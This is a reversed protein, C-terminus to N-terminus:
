SPVRAGTPDSIQESAPENVNPGNQIQGKDKQQEKGKASGQDSPDSAREANRQQKKGELVLQDDGVIQGVAQKVQGQAKEKFKTMVIEGSTAQREAVDKRFEVVLMRDSQFNRTERFRPASAADDRPASAPRHTQTLASSCLM